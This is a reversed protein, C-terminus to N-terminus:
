ATTSVVARGQGVLLQVSWIMESKRWLMVTWCTAAESGPRSLTSWRAPPPSVRWGEEGESELSLAIAHLSRNPIEKEKLGVLRRSLM